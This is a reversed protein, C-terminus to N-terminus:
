WARCRSSRPRRSRARCSVHGGLGGRRRDRVDRDDDDVVLGAVLQERAELGEVGGPTAAAEIRASEISTQTGTVVITDMARDDSATGNDAGSSEAMGAAPSLLLATAVCRAARTYPSKM